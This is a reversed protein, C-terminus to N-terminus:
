KDETVDNSGEKMKGPTVQNVNNNRQMQNSLLTMMNAMMEQQNQMINRMMENTLQSEERKAASDEKITNMIALMTKDTDKEFLIM